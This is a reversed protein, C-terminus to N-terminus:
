AACGASTSSSSALRAPDRQLIDIYSAFGESTQEAQAAFEDPDIEDGALTWVDCKATLVPSHETNLALVAEKLAPHSAAEALVLVASPDQRLDVFGDWPVDISPLDPGVEAAWDAEM